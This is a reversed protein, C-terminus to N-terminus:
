GKKDKKEKKDKKNKKEKVEKCKNTIEGNEEENHKNKKVKEETRSTPKKDVELLFEYRPITDFTYVNIFYFCCDNKKTMIIM